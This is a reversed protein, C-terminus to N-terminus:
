SPPVNTKRTDSKSVVRTQITDFCLRIVADPHSKHPEHGADDLRTSAVPANPLEAEILDLQLFTGYEDKAGQLLGVPCRIGPLFPTIDWGRMAPSLWLDRWSEYAVAVDAHKRSLSRHFAPADELCPLSRIGEVTRDEVIIHPAIASISQVRGPHLAGAILAISGGDSHGVLDAKAIDLADMVSPLVSVAERTLYDPPRAPVMPPSAGSGPRSYHIVRLGPLRPTLGTALDVLSHRTGFGHHLFIVAPGDPPGLEAYDVPGIETALLKSM